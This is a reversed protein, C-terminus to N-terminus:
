PTGGDSAQVGVRPLTVTFTTAGPRSAVEITGRHRDVINRSITLGLGLGFEVRGGKTTFHLDFIRPLDAPDIGPGSDSIEVRIHDADPCSTAVRLRGRGTMAQIANSLLNTWVQNLEGPFGVVTPVGGYDKDVEIEHLQHNLLMLSEDLGEEVDVDSYEEQGARSYSRLSKVLSAVRAASSRLNRLSTGLRAYLEIDDLRADLDGPPTGDLLEAAEAAGSFGLGALRRALAEDGLEEALRRRRERQNRTSEAPRQLAERLVRELIPTTSLRSIDEAVFDVGRGLAAVPNNLEHAIGAVLQGLTAMKESEILRAQAAALRELARALQDREVALERALRDIHVRQEVTRLNRRALSRVLVDVLHVPLTASRQLAEDLQTFSVPIASLETIAQCTFAAPERLAMASLGVIRGATRSHFIVDHDEVRRFLRVRGALVIQIGEVPQGEELLVTGAPYVVREPGDLARELEDIMAQEVEDDSLASDGLFTRQLRLMDHRASALQAEVSPSSRRLLAAGTRDAAGALDTAGGELAEDIIVLPVGVGGDTLELLRAELEHATAFVEVHVLETTLSDIQGLLRKREASDTAAILIVGPVTV